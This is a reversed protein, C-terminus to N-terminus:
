DVCIRGGRHKVIRVGFQKRHKQDLKKLIAFGADERLYGEDFLYDKEKKTIYSPILTHPLLLQNGYTDIAKRAPEIRVIESEEKVEHSRNCDM